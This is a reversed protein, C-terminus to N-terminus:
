YSSTDIVDNTLRAIDEKSIVNSLIRASGEDLLTKIKDKIREKAIYLNKTDELALQTKPPIKFEDIAEYHKGRAKISERRNLRMTEPYQQLLNIYDHMANDVDRLVNDITTTIVQNLVAEDKLQVKNKETELSSLINDLKEVINVYVDLTNEHLENKHCHILKIITEVVIRRFILKFQSEHIKKMKHTDDVYQITTKNLNKKLFNLNEKKSYILETMTTIIHSIDDGKSFIHLIDKIKLFSIDELGLPNIYNIVTTTRNDNYTNNITKNDINHTTTIVTGSANLTNSSMYEKTEKLETQLSIIKQELSKIREELLDSKTSSPTVPTEILKCRNLREHRKASSNYQFVKKCKSCQNPTTINIKNKELEIENSLNDKEKDVLNYQEEEDNTTDDEFVFDGEVEDDKLKEIIKCKGMKGNCHRKLLYAFEFAKGCLNCKHKLRIAM